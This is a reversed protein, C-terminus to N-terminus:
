LASFIVLFEFFIGELNPLPQHIERMKSPSTLCASPQCPLEPITRWRLPISLTWGDMPYFSLVIIWWNTAQYDGLGRDQSVGLSSGGTM